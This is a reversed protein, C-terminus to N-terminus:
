EKGHEREKQTVRQMRLTFHWTTYENPQEASAQLLRWGPFKAAWYDKDYLQGSRAVADVKRGTWRSDNPPRREPMRLGRSQRWRRRRNPNKLIYTCLDQLNNSMNLRDANCNGLMEGDVSWLQELEDRSLAASIIIHHHWRVGKQGSAADAQRGETVAIYKAPAKGQKALRYRVRRLFNDLDRVAAQEDQPRHPEDYTCTLHIDKRTFNANALQVLYRRANKDNLRQQKESTPKRERSRRPRTGHETVQYIDVEMYSDGCIVRQERMFTRNKM